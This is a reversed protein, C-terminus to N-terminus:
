VTSSPPTYDDQDSARAEKQQAIFLQSAESLEAPKKREVSNINLDEECYVRFSQTKNEQNFAVLEFFVGKDSSESIGAIHLELADDTFCTSLQQTVKDDLKQKERDLDSLAQHESSQNRQAKEAKKDELFNDIKKNVLIELGGGEPVNLKGM